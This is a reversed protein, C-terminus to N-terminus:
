NYVKGSFDEVLSTVTMETRYSAIISFGTFYKKKVSSAELIRRVPDVSLEEVFRNGILLVIAQGSAEKKHAPFGALGIPLSLM